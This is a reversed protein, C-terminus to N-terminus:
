LQVSADSALGTLYDRYSGKPYSQALNALQDTSLYGQRWAVEEVCGLRTGQRHEIVQVFQAAEGLSEHTGTDFWVFGRGMREVHLTGAALYNQNIDTIEIEGRASPKLGKAIEVM